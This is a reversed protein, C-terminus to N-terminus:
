AIAKDTLTYPVPQLHQWGKSDIFKQWDGPECYRETNIAPRPLAVRRYLYAAFSSCVVHGPAGQGRWNRAYLRDINPRMWAFADWAIARWDYATGLMDAAHAAIEARQADTKPQAANHRTNPSALYHRLDAWGVGGPRGEIGWPTGHADIHHAIVVHNDLNPKRCLREGLRIVAAAWGNTRVTLVDGVDIGYYTLATARTSVM